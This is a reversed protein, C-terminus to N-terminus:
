SNTTSLHIVQAPIKLTRFFSVILSNQIIHANNKAQKTLGFHVNTQSETLAAYSLTNVNHM